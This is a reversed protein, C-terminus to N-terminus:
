LSYDDYCRSWPVILPFSSVMHYPRVTFPDPIHPHHGDHEHSTEEEPAEGVGCLGLFLTRTDGAVGRDLFQHIDGPLDGGLARRLFRCLGRPLPSPPFQSRQLWILLYEDVVREELFIGMRLDGTLFAVSSIGPGCRHLGGMFPQDNVGRIGVWGLCTPLAMILDNGLVLGVEM